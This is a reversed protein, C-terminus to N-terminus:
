RPTARSPRGSDSGDSSWSSWPARRRGRDRRAPCPRDRGARRLLGGPRAEAVEAGGRRVVLEGEIVLWFEEGPTGDVVVTHRAPYRLHDAQKVMVDLEKKSMSAFLPVSKLRDIYLDKSM